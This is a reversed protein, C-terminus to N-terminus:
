YRCKIGDAYEVQRVRDAESITVQTKSEEASKEVLRNNEDKTFPKFEKAVKGHMSQNMDLAISASGCTFDFESFDVSKISTFRATRFFIAKNSIDYVISWRTWGPQAM